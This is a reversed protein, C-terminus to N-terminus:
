IQCIVLPDYPLSLWPHPHIVGTLVGSLPGKAPAWSADLPRWGAFAVTVLVPVQRSRDVQLSLAAFNLGLPATLAVTTFHAASVLQRRANSSIFSSTV